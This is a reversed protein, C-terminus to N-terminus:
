FCNVKLEITSRMGSQDVVSWLEDLVRRSAWRRQHDPHVAMHVSWVNNIEHYFWTYGIIEGDVELDLVWSEDLRPVPWEFPHYSSVFTAMQDLSQKSAGGPSTVWVSYKPRPKPNSM